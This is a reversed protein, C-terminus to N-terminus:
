LSILRLAIFSSGLPPYGWGSVMSILALVLSVWLEANM